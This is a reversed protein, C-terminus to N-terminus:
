KMNMVGDGVSRRGVQGFLYKFPVPDMNRDDGCQMAGVDGQNAFIRGVFRDYSETDVIRVTHGGDGVEQFLVGVVMELDGLIDLDDGIENVELSKFFLFFVM